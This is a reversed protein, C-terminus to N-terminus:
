KPEYASNYVMLLKKIEEKDSWPIEKKGFCMSKEHGKGTILITNGWCNFRKLVYKIAKGRDPIKIVKPNKGPIIQEIIDETKESRPDEATLVVFDAYKLAVNGMVPRKSKDREGACGFVVILKKPKLRKARELLNELANPTHAFDVVITARGKGQQLVEFRGEPATFSHLAKKILEEEIGVEKAAKVAALSNAWNYESNLAPNEMVAQYLNPYQEKEEKPAYVIVEQAFTRLKSFSDDDGNLISVGAKKLLKAKALLYNNYTKHYDLHERTINTIIALKYNCGLVRHQDLGHSTTEIVVHTCNQKVMQKLFKQLKFPNPTTTHLGTDYDKNGIKASVTTILGAKIGSEKLIHYLISCTTTKGDTGTVGIVYLNKAPYRYYAVALLARLFHTINKILRM